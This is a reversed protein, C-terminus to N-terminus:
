RETLRLFHYYNQIVVYAFQSALLGQTQHSRCDGSAIVSADVGPRVMTHIPQEPNIRLINNTEVGARRRITIVSTDPSRRIITTTEIGARHRIATASTDAGHRIV